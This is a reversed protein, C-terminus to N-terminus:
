VHIFNEVSFVFIKEIHTKGLYMDTYWIHEQYESFAFSPTSNGRVLTISTQSSGYTYLYHSGPHRSSWDM